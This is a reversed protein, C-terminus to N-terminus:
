PVLLGFEHCLRNVVREQESERVLCSITIESDIAILADVGEEYLSEVVRVMNDPIHQIGEGILSIKVCDMESTLDLDFAKLLCLVKAGLINEVVFSIRDSSVISMDASIGARELTKFVRVSDSAALLGKMSRVMILALSSLLAINRVGQGSKRNVLVKEKKSRIRLPLMSQHASVFARANKNRDTCKTIECLEQYSLRRARGDNAENGPATVNEQENTYIELYEAELAVAFRVIALEEGEIGFRTIEGHNDIGQDGAVVVVKGEGLHHLVKDPSIQLVEAKGHAEDTIFGAQGGTLTMATIGEAELTQAVLVATIIEGCSLLLDMDRPSLDRDTHNVLKSLKEGRYPYEESGYQASIVIVPSIGEILAATIDTMMRARGEATTALGGLYKFVAIRV